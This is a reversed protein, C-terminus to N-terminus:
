QVILKVCVPMSVSVEQGTLSLRGTSPDIRFVVVTDSDQNAVLLFTGTPDIAFNRPTEGETPTHAVLSLTGDDPDARYVVISDHGRNSGYVFNGTQLVHIDATTNQGSYGEPLTPVTQLEDLAGTEGDFSFVTVTNGMENILYAFRGSPHFAFHRPGSGPEVEAYPLDSPILRGPEETINYIMVKDIGLDAVYAYRNSPDLTVSHAHPGKQRRLDPGSGEHVVTDTAPGLSGDRQIPFVAVTGSTYNAAYLFRGDADVSLHAPSVGQSPQQNLLTLMGTETDISFASVAGTPEGRFEGMENVAYLFRQEPGTALFSPNEAEVSGLLELAGTVPDFRYIYIGDSEERTYTGVYALITPEQGHGM